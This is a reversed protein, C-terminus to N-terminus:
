RINVISKWKTKRWSLKKGKKQNQYINKESISGTCRVVCWLKSVHVVKFKLWKKYWEKWINEKQTLLKSLSLSFHTEFEIWFTIWNLQFLDILWKIELPFCKPSGADLFASFFLIAWISRQTIKKREASKFSTNRCSLFLRGFYFIDILM